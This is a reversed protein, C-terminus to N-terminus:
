SDKKVHRLYLYSMLSVLAFLGAAIRLSWQLHSKEPASNEEASSTSIGAVEASSLEQERPRPHYTVAIGSPKKSVSRSPTVQGDVKSPIASISTSSQSSTSITPSKCVYEISDKTSTTQICWSGNNRALSEGKEITEYVTMDHVTGERDSLTVTDGDNNLLSYQLEVVAISKGPITKTVQQPSGGSLADDDIKWDVLAVSKDSDNYLEVWEVGSEPNPYIEWLFVVGKPILTDSSASCASQDYQGKTPLGVIWSSSCWIHAKGSATSPYTYSAHLTGSTDRLSVTDGGNNLIAGATAVAVSGPELIQQDWMLRKGTADELFLISLDQGSTGDNYIEVWEDENEVPAPYIEVISLNAHVPSTVLSSYFLVVTVIVIKPLHQYTPIFTGM